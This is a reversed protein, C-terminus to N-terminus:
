KATAGLMLLAMLPKARDDTFVGQVQGLVRGTRDFVIAYIQRDDGILDLARRLGVPDVFLPVVRERIAADRIDRRMGAGIMGRVFANQPAIVPLEMWPVRGSTLDLGKVWTDVDAQQEQTFAILVLTREAPLEAPLALSRENLNEATMAPMRGTPETPPAAAAHVQLLAAALLVSHRLSARRPKLLLNM